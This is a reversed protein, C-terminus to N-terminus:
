SNVLFYFAVVSIFLVMAAAYYRLFGSQARRVAASGARIIGTAGGTVIDGIVVRELLGSAVGGFWLIPRVM